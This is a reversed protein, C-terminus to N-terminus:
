HGFGGFGGFGEFGGFGGFLGGFDFGFHGGGQRTRSIEGEDEGEDDNDKPHHHHPFDWDKDGHWDKPPHHPFDPKPFHPPKHPHEPFEPKPPKVKPDLVATTVAPEGICGEPIRFRFDNRLSGQRDLYPFSKAGIQSRTAADTILAAGTRPVLSGIECARKLVRCKGDPSCMTVEGALLVTNTLGTVRDVFWDFVTGRVGMTGTPTKITYADKKSNGTLFRFSGGLTNLTFKSVSGDGRMLYSEVVLTSRPGVVLRTEDSFVIQVQGANGTVIRQGAYIDAGKILTVTTGALEGKADPNVLVAEGSPEVALAVAPMLLAFVLGLAGLLDHRPTSM